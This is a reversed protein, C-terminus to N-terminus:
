SGACTAYFMGPVPKPVTAPEPPYDFGTFFDGVKEMMSREAKMQEVQRAWVRRNQEDTADKWAQAWADADSRLAAILASLSHQEDAARERFEDGFPGRWSRLAVGADTDRVSRAAQLEDAYAWLSRALRLSGEFDFRVDRANASAM